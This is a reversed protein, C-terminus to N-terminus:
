VEMLMSELFNQRRAAHARVKPSERRRDLIKGWRHHALEIARVEIIECDRWNSINDALEHFKEMEFNFLDMEHFIDRGSQIDAETKRYLRVREMLLGPLWPSLPMSLGRVISVRKSEAEISEESLPDRLRSERFGIEVAIERQKGQAIGSLVWGPFAVANFTTLGALGLSGNLYLANLTEDGTQSKIFAGAIGMLTLIPVGRAVFKENNAKGYQDYLELLEPSTREPIRPM